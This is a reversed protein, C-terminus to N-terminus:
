FKENKKFVGFIFRLYQKEIWIQRKQPVFKCNRDNNQM